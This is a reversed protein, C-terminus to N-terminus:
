QSVDRIQHSKGNKKASGAQPDRGPVPGQRASPPKVAAEVITAGILTGKPIILGHAGVPWNIEAFV